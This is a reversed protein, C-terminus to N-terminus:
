RRRQVGRAKGRRRRARRSAAPGTRSVRPPAATRSPLAAAANITRLAWGGFVLSAAGAGFYFIQEGPGIQMGFPQDLTLGLVGLSVSFAGSVLAVWVPTSPNARLLLTVGVLAAGWVVHLANQNVDGAAGDVALFVLGDLVLGAGLVLV